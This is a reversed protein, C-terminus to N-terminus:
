RAQLLVVPHHEVKAAEDNYGHGTQGEWVLSFGAREFQKLSEDKSFHSWYMTTGFFDDELYGPESEQALSVLFFGGDVLWMRLKVLFKFQDHRPIHFLAYMMVAADFTGHDFQLKTADGHVFTANPVSQKALKIQARSIDVGTVQFRRSLFAAIPRGCGCGVDIVRAGDPIADTLRGLHPSVAANRTSAYNEACRDYGAAVFAKADFDPDAIPRM